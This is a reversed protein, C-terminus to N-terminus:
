QIRKIITIVGQAPTFEEGDADTVTAQHIFKGYLDVTDSPSLHVAFEGNEVAGTISIGDGLSKEVEAESEGYYSMKWAITAGNLSVVTGSTNYVTYDYYRDTGAIFSDESLSNIDDYSTYSM